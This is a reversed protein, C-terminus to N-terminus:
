LAVRVHYLDNTRSWDPGGYMQFSFGKIYLPIKLVWTQKLGSIFHAAKIKTHKLTLFAYEESM